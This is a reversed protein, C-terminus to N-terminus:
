SLIDEIEKLIKLLTKTKITPSDFDILVDTIHLFGNFKVLVLKGIPKNFRIVKIRDQESILDKIQHVTLERLEKILRKSEKIRQKFAHSKCRDNILDQNELEAYILDPDSITLGQGDLNDIYEFAECITNLIISM